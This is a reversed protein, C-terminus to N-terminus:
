SMFGYYQQRLNEDKTQKQLALSGKEKSSTYRDKSHSNHQAFVRTTTDSYKGKQKKLEEHNKLHDQLVKSESIYACREELQEDSHTGRAILANNSFLENRAADIEGASALDATKQVAAVGLVAVNMGEEMTSRNETIKVSKSIVRMMKRGDKLTYKIQAQFPLNSLSLKKGPNKLKFKFIVDTEKTANGVEKVVRSSGKPYRIDDIELEDHLQLTISVATAVVYNQSILRLQRIMELPNLVNITGGSLEACKSVIQLEVPEGEVALVSIVIGNERAHNGVKRYFQEKSESANNGGVGQNPAGDTCLVIESGTTEMAIGLALSVAPGLATCGETNLSDVKSTLNRCSESIPPVIMDMAFRKGEDVLEEYNNNNATSRYHSGNDRLIDVDSSFKILQVRRDPEDIELRELQRNLAQKIAALRTIYETGYSTRDRQSRWESTIRSMETSQDMSGSVDICYIQYGKSPGKKLSVKDEGEALSPNQEECKDPVFLVYDYTDKNPIEEINLDMIVNEKGCFECVWITKHEQQSVTSVCSLVAQCKECHVSDGTAIDSEDELTKMSLLLVNTDAKKVKIKSKRKGENLVDGTSQARMNRSPATAPRERRRFSGSITHWLSSLIGRRQVSDKNRMIDKGSGAVTQSKETEKSQKAVKKKGKVTIMKRYSDEITPDYAEVFHGSTFQVTLSSKGVGGSGNVVIKYMQSPQTGPIERVLTEFAQHVNHATKASTELFPIGLKAALESGEKETIQRSDFLDVKNGCLVAPVTEKNLIKLLFYYISEAEQFSHRDTVSYVILFGDGTRIYADRLASYEEQGATDLIDLFCTQENEDGGSASHTKQILEDLEEPVEEDELNGCYVFEGGFEM